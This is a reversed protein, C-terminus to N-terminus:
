DGADVSSDFDLPWSPPSTMWACCEADRSLFGVASAGKVPGELVREKTPLNVTGRGELTTLLPPQDIWVRKRAFELLQSLGGRGIGGLCQSRCRGHDSAGAMVLGDLRRRAEHGVLEDVDEELLPRWEIGDDM